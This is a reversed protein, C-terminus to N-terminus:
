PHARDFLEGRYYLTVFIGRHRYVATNGSNQVVEGFFLLFLLFSLSIPLIRASVEGNNTRTGHACRLINTSYFSSM